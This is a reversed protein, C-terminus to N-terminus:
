RSPQLSQLLAGQNWADWGEILKGNAFRLWTIGRFDVPRQTARFGLGDGAHTGSVVWRVVVQNGEAVTDEVVISLDPFASLLMDRVQRFEAPGRIEAGEMHGLTNPMLMEDITDERRQNWVEDMWRKALARNAESM